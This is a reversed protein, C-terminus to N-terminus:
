LDYDTQSLIVALFHDCLYSELLACLRGLNLNDDLCYPWNVFRFKVPFCYGKAPFPVNTLMERPADIVVINGELVTVATQLKM